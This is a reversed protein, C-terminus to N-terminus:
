SIKGLEKDTIKQSHTEMKRILKKFARHNELWEKCRNAQAESLQMTVTKGSKKKSWQFYPGHWASKGEIMCKCGARGCPMFRRVLSGPRVYGLESLSKKLDEFVTDTESSM